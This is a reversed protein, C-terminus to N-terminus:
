LDLSFKNVPITVNKVSYISCNTHMTTYVTNCCWKDGTNDTNDMPQRQHM